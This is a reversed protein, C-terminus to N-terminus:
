NMNLCSKRADMLVNCVVSWGWAKRLCNKVHLVIFKDCCNFFSFGFHIFVYNRKCSIKIKSNIQKLENNHRCLVPSKVYVGCLCKKFSQDTRKHLLWVKQCWYIEMLFFLFGVHKTKISAIKTKVSKPNELRMYYIPQYSPWNICHM